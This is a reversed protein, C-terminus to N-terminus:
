NGEWMVKPYVERVQGNEFIYRWTCGDEGYYQIYGDEIYQSICNFLEFDDGLKEGTFYDIEYMLPIDDFCLPYRINEMSSVGSDSEILEYEDIWMINQNYKAYERLACEINKINEPKIKITSEKMEICYGM